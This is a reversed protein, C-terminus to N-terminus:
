KRGLPPLALSVVFLVFVGLLLAIAVIRLFVPLQRRWLYKVSAVLAIAAMTSIISVAFLIDPYDFISRLYQRVHLM